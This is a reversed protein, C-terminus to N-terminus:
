PRGQLFARRLSSQADQLCSSLWDAFTLAVAKASAIEHNQRALNLANFHRAVLLAREYGLDAFAVLARRRRLSGLYAGIQPKLGALYGLDGVGEASRPDALVGHAAHGSAEISKPSGQPSRLKSIRNIRRAHVDAM